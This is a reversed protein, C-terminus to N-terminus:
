AIPAHAELVGKLGTQHPLALARRQRSVEDELCRVEERKPPTRLMKEVVAVMLRREM